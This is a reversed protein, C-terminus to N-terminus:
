YHCLRATRALSVGPATDLRLGARLPLAHV